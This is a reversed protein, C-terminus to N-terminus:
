VELDRNDRLLNWSNLEEYPQVHMTALSSLFASSSESWTLEIIMKDVTTMTFHISKDLRERLDVFERIKLFSGYKYAFTLHDASQFKYLHKKKKKLQVNIWWYM